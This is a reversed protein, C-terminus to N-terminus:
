CPWCCNCTSAVSDAPPKIISPSNIPDATSVGPRSSTTPAITKQHGYFEIIRKVCYKDRDTETVVPHPAFDVGDPTLVMHEAVYRAAALSKSLLAPSMTLSDASNDFGAENAPDIPFERTPQIDVGILDRITYNLEANSLRRVPVHGPEGAHKDAESKRFARVWNVLRDRETPNLASKADAPPMEGHAVREALEAWTQHAVAVHQTSTFKTLDLM